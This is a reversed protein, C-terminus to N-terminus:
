PFFRVFKPFVVDTVFNYLVIVEQPLLSIGQTERLGGFCITFSADPKFEKKPNPFIMEVTVDDLVKFSTGPPQVIDLMTGTMPISRHKAINCFFDLVWLPHSNYSNGRHYPQLAQIEDRADQALSQTVENFRRQTDSDWDKCIPFETRRYPVGDSINLLALEWALYDLSARLTQFVDAVLIGLRAPPPTFNVRALYAGDQTQRAKVTPTNSQIFVHIEDNLVNLHEM